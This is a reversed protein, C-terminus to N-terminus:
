GDAVSDVGVPYFKFTLDQDRIAVIFSRQTEAFIGESRILTPALSPLAVHDHGHIGTTIPIDLYTYVSSISPIFASWMELFLRVRPPGVILLPSLDIRKPRKETYKSEETVRRALQTLLLPLGLHHDAHSHSILVVRIRTLVEDESTVRLLQNLTGEGCDLLISNNLLMGTVVPSLRDIVLGNRYKSPLASGTGLFLLSGPITTKPTIEQLRQFYSKTGIETMSLSHDDSLHAASTLSQSPKHPVLTIM